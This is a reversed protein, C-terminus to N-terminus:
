GKLYKIFQELEESKSTKFDKLFAKYLEECKTLFEFASINEYTVYEYEGLCRGKAFTFIYVIDWDKNFRKEIELSLDENSFLTLLLCTEFSPMENVFHNVNKVALQIDLKNQEKM